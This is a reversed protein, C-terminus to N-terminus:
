PFLLNAPNEWYTMALLLRLLGSIASQSVSQVAKFFSSQKPCARTIIRHPKLYQLDYNITQCVPISFNLFKM